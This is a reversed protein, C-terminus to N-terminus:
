STQDGQSVTSPFFWDTGTSFLSVPIFVIFCYASVEYPHYVWIPNISYLVMVLILSKLNPISRLFIPFWKLDSANLTIYLSSMYGFQPLQVSESYHHILQFWLSLFTSNSVKVRYSFHSHGFSANVYIYRSLKHVYRWIESGRFGLSFCTSPVQKQKTLSGSIFVSLFISSPM